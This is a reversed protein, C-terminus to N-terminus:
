ASARFPAHLTIQEITKQLDYPDCPKEMVAAAGLAFLDSKEELSGSLVIVPTRDGVYQLVRKGGGGPMAGDTIVVDPSEFNILSLADHVTVAEFVEHGFRKLLRALSRVCDVDDDVVVIRAGSLLERSSSPSSANSDSAVEVAPLVLSFVSGKGPSSQVEIRGGHQETLLKAISLGLGAGEIKDGQYRTFPQFLGGIQEASMGLGTDSVSVEAESSRASRLAVSVAGYPTYKIANSVLNTVIRRLQNKDGMVWLLEAPSESKLSLGRMQAAVRFSEIVDEVIGQLAIPEFKRPAAGARVRSLDLVDEVVAEVGTCNSLAVEVLEASDPRLEELRLLSLIAKVNSLPSRIDHSFQALLEPNRGAQPEGVLKRLEQSYALEDTLAEQLDVVFREETQTRRVSPPFGLWIILGGRESVCGGEILVDSFGFSAFWNAASDLPIKRRALESGRKILSLFRAGDVGLLAIADDNSDTDDWLNIAVAAARSRSRAYQAVRPALASLGDRRWGGSGILERFLPDRRVGAALNRSQEAEWAATEARLNALQFRGALAEGVSTSFRGHWHQSSQDSWFIRMLDSAVLVCYTFLLVASAVVGFYISAMVSFTLLAGTSLLLLLALM